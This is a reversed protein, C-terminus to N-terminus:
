SLMWSIKQTSSRDLVPIERETMPPITGKSDLPTKSNAIATTIKSVLLVTLLSPDQTVTTSRSIVISEITGEAKNITGEERSGNVLVSVVSALSLALDAHAGTKLVAVVATMLSASEVSEVILIMTVCSAIVTQEVSYERTQLDSQHVTVITVASLGGFKFEEEGLAQLAPRVSM